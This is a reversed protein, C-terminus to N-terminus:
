EIEFWCVKRDIVFGLSQALSLSKENDTIIYVFPIKDRERLKNALYITIDKAYGKRRYEDLVYLFGLAGDDHVCIWAVLKGDDEIGASINRKIMDKVYHISDEDNYTWYKNVVEADNETLERVNTKITPLNTDNPLYLRYATEGWVMDRNKTLIPKMWKEIAAFSKDTENLHPIIKNLANEDRCSIFVWKADTAKRALISDDIIKINNPPYVEDRIVNMISLNKIVDKKLIELAKEKVDNM